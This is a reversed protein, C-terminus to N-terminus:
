CIDYASHIIGSMVYEEMGLTTPVTTSYLSSSGTTTHVLDVLTTNFFSGCTAMSLPLKEPHGSGRIFKGIVMWMNYSLSVLFGILAGKKDVWPLLIGALFVGSLPGTIASTISVVVHFLNGLKGMVMGLGVAM